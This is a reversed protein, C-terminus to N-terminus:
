CFQGSYCNVPPVSNLESNSVLPGPSSLAGLTEGLGGDLVVESGFFNRVGVQPVNMWWGANAPVSFDEGDFDPYAVLQRQFSLFFDATDELSFGHIFRLNQQVTAYATNLGIWELVTFLGDTVTLELGPEFMENVRTGQIEVFLPTNCRGTMNTFGAQTATVNGMCATGSGLSTNIVFQGSLETNLYGSIRNLGTHCALKQDGTESGCTGGFEQNVQGQEYVRGVGFYGNAQQSGIKVGVIERLAPDDDGTVALEIYPRLLSFSSTAGEPSPGDGAANLGMLRVFDMDIDCANSVVSENFGGCGLQMKDINANLELNVDLGMRYYTFNTEPSGPDGEIVDTVFLAQGTVASLEDDDLSLMGAPAKVSPAPESHHRADQPLREMESVPSSAGAAAGQVLLALMVAIFSSEKRM